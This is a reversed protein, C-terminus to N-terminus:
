QLKGHQALEELGNRNLLKINRGEVQILDQKSMKAL